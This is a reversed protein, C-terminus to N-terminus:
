ISMFIKAYDHMMSSKMIFEQGNLCKWEVDWGQSPYSKTMHSKAFMKFLSYSFPMKTLESNKVKMRQENHQTEKLTAKLADDKSFGNEQLSLYLAVAPFIRKFVHENMVENEYKEKSNCLEDYKKSAAEYILEGHNEGYIKVLDNHLFDLNTDSYDM